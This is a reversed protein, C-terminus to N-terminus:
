RGATSARLWRPPTAARRPRQQRPWRDVVRVRLGEAALVHVRNEMGRREFLLDAHGRGVRLGKLRVSELWYPLRPRVVFLRSGPADPVLGLIAHLIMPLAGAAWAQPRCAVPYPVPAHHASRAEGGFLEPLRYYAFSMAADFLATAVENLEEVFGYRKFGMACIANDHPWVSGLHYGIPNFRPSSASLTRIGWGTFTDNRLLREAVPRAKAPEVIGAWLAHGANSAVSACPSNDGDLALAFFGQDELWFDRNFRRSLTTAQRRLKAAHAGDGLAEFVAALGAKAAYTYAQVEALAIPPRAPTGEAHIIADASDKWGQNVLGRASRKEYEVYGDGDPDGFTDLWELGALLHPRLERMLRLDATWRYYEAALAGVSRVFRALSEFPM